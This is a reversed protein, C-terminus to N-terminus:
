AERYVQAHVPHGADASIKLCNHGMKNWKHAGLLDLDKTRRFIKCALRPDGIEANFKSSETGPNKTDTLLDRTSQTPVPFCIQEPHRLIINRYEIAALKQHADMINAMKGV